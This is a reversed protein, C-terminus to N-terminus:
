HTKIYTNDREQYGMSKLIGKAEEIMRANDQKPIMVCKGQFQSQNLIMRAVNHFLIPGEHEREWKKVTAKFEEQNLHYELSM